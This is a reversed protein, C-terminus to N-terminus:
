PPHPPLNPTKEKNIHKNESAATFERGLNAQPDKSRPSCSSKWGLAESSSAQLYSSGPQEASVDWGGKIMPLPHIQSGSIGLGRKATAERAPNTHSTKGTGVSTQSPSQAWFGQGVTSPNGQIHRQTFSNEMLFLLLNFGWFSINGKGLIWLETEM